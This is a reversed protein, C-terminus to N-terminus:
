VIGGPVHNDACLEWVQVEVEPERGQCSIEECVQADQLCLLPCQHLGHHGVLSQDQLLEKHHMVQQWLEGAPVNIHQSTIQLAM